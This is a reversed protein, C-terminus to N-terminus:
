DMYVEEELVQKFDGGQMLEMVICYYNQHTFSFIGKVLYPGVIARMIKHENIMNEM